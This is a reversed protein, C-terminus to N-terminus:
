EYYDDYNDYESESDIMYDNEDYAPAEYSKQSQRRTNKSTELLLESMILRELQKELDDGDCESLIELNESVIHAARKATNKTVDETSLQKKRSVIKNRYRGRGRVAHTDSPLEENIEDIKKDVNENHDKIEYLEKPDEYRGEFIGEKVLRLWTRSGVKVPRQTKPNIIIDGKKPTREKISM